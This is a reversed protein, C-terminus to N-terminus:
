NLKFNSPLLVLFALTCSTNSFPLYAACSEFASATIRRMQHCKLTLHSCYLSPSLRAASNVFPLHAACSEFASATIRRMYRKLSLTL